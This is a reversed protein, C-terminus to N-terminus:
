VGLLRKTSEYFVHHGRDLHHISLLLSSVGRSNSVFSFSFRSDVSMTADSDCLPQHLKFMSVYQEGQNKTYMWYGKEKQRVDWAPNYTICIVWDKMSPTSSGLPALMEFFKMMVHLQLRWYRFCSFKCNEVSNPFWAYKVLDSMRRGQPTVVLEALQWMLHWAYPNSGGFGRLAPLGGIYFVNQKQIEV